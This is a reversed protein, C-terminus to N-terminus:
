DSNQKELEELVSKGTESKFYDRYSSMFEQLFEESSEESYSKAQLLTDLKDAEKALKAEETEQDQLEHFLSTFEERIEEPVDEILEEFAQKEMEKKSDFEEDEPTYDEVYAMILDHMALMKVIKDSDLEEKEALVWGLLSAGLSHSAITDRPREVDKDKWGQRESHKLEEVDNFFTFLDM